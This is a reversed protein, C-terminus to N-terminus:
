GADVRLRTVPSGTQAFWTVQQAVCDLELIYRGPQLPPADFTVTVDEGPGLVQPLWCWAYEHDLLRGDADYLHCGLSVGGFAESSPLWPARGLNRVTARIPVPKGAETRTAAVSAEISARLETPKGGRAAEAGAKRLFFVRVSHLFDRTAESWRAFADGAELLDDYEALSVHFPPVNLAALKLDAFGLRQATEWIAHVDVDNEVVGFTRMEYQSQPTKSHHPGPESFGAIGGPRLVRALERLVEDPNPAHHFSDFCVIRDVSLDPLDIRRGDFPLFQPEPRTGIVPM